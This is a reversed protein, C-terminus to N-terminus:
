CSRGSHGESEKVQHENAHQAPQRQEGAGIGGLVGLDERKSVLDGDQVAGIGSRCEGPEVTGHEARQAPQQRDRQALQPQHRGSGQQAPVGVEDGSAPGVWVSSWASWGGCRRDSSEHQPHGALIGSPAVSADLALQDTEAM